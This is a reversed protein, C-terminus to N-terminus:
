RLSTATGSCGAYSQTAGVTTGSTYSCSPNVTLSVAGGCADNAPAVPPNTVCITFTGSGAGAAFHYVRIKYTTRITLGTAVFEYWVDDDATGVCGVISQTASATTGATTVCSSNVSLVTATSCNDSQAFTATSGILALFLSLRLKM